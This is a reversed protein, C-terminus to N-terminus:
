PSVSGDAKGARRWRQKPSLTRRCNPCFRQARRRIPRRFVRNCLPCELLRATRIQDHTPLLSSFEARTERLLVTAEWPTLGPIRELAEEYWRQWGRLTVRLTAYDELLQAANGHFRGRIAASQSGILDGRSMDQELVEDAADQAIHLRRAAASVTPRVTVAERYIRSLGSAGLQTRSDRIKHRASFREPDNLLLLFEYFPRRTQRNM